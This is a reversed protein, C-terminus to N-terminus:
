FKCYFCESQMLAVILSGVQYQMFLKKFNKVSNEGDVNQILASIILKIRPPSILVFFRYQTFFCEM